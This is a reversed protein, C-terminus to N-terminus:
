FDNLRQYDTHNSVLGVNSINRTPNCVPTFNIVLSARKLKSVNVVLDSM